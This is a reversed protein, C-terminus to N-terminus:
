SISSKDTIGLLYDASIKYKQCITYLFPTAIIYRGSEYGALTGDTTNLIQALAKLTLKNNKRFEKLRKGSETKNIENYNTNSYNGNKTFNFLYDFSINFLNCITNLHKIPIINYETEYHSYVSQDIKLIKALNKQTYNNEERIFKLRESYM